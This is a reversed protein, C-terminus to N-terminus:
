ALLHKDTPGAVRAHAPIAGSSFHTAKRLVVRPAQIFLQVLCVTLIGLAGVLLVVLFAPILYVALVMQVLRCGMGSATIRARPEDLVPVSSHSRVRSLLSASPFQPIMITPGQASEPSLVM